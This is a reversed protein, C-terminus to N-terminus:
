PKGAGSGLTRPRAVTAPVDASARRSRASPRAYTIRVVAAVIVATSTAFYLAMLWPAESDTGLQLGHWLAGAYILVSAWHIAKWTKAGLYARFWFSLSVIVALYLVLQGVASLSTQYYSAFPLLVDALGFHTFRDPILVLAHALGLFVGAFSASQHLAVLRARGVIGDLWASSMLLGGVFALWLCLYSAVGAARSAYWAGHGGGDGFLAGALPRAYMAGAIAGLLVALVLGAWYLRMM